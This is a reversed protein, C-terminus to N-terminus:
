TATPGAASSAPPHETDPPKRKNASSHSDAVARALRDQAAQIGTMGGGNYAVKAALIDTESAKVALRLNFTDRGGLRPQPPASSRYAGQTERSTKTTNGIARTQQAEISSSPTSSSPAPPSATHLLLPDTIYIQSQLRMAKKIEATWYAAETTAGKEINARTSDSCGWIPIHKSKKRKNLLALPAQEHQLKLYSYGSVPECLTPQVDVDDIRFEDTLRIGKWCEGRGPRFCRELLRVAETPEALCDLPLGETRPLVENDSPHKRPILPVRLVDGVEFLTTRSAAPANDDDRSNDDRSRSRERSGRSARDPGATQAEAPPMPPVEPSVPQSADAPSVPDSTAPDSADPLEFDFRAAQPDQGSFDLSYRKGNSLFMVPRGRLKAVDGRLEVHRHGSVSSFTAIDADINALKLYRRIMDHTIGGDINTAVVVDEEPKVVGHGVSVLFTCSPAHAEIEWRRYLLDKSLKQDERWQRLDGLIQLIDDNDDGGVTVWKPTERVIHHQWISTALLPQLEAWVGDPLFLTVGASYTAGVRFSTSDKCCLQKLAATPASARIQIGVDTKRQSQKIIERKQANGTKVRHQLPDKPGEIIYDDDHQPLACATIDIIDSAGPGIDLLDDRKTHFYGNGTSDQTMHFRVLSTTRLVVGNHELVFLAPPSSIAVERLRGLYARNFYRLPASAIHEPANWFGTDSRVLEVVHVDALGEHSLVANVLAHDGFVWVPQVSGSELSALDAATTVLTAKASRCKAKLLNLVPVSPLRSARVDMVATSKCAFQGPSFM